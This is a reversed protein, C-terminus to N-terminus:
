PSAKFKRRGEDLIAGEIPKGSNTEGDKNKYRASMESAYFPSSTPSFDKEIIKLM